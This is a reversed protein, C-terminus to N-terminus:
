PRYAHGPRPPHDVAVPLGMGETLVQEMRAADCSLIMHEFEAAFAFIPNIPCTEYLRPRAGCSHSQCDWRGLPGIAGSNKGDGTHASRSGCDRAVRMPRVAGFAAWRRGLGVVM